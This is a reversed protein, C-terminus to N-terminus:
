FVVFFMCMFCFRAERAIIEINIKLAHILTSILSETVLLPDPFPIPAVKCSLIMLEFTMVPTILSFTSNGLPFYVELNVDSNIQITKLKLSDYIEPNLGSNRKINKNGAGGNWAVKFGKRPNLRYDVRDFKVGIGYLVLRTDANQPLTAVNELGVTSLLSSSRSELFVKFFNGGTLM